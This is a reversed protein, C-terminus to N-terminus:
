LAELTADRDESDETRSQGMWRDELRPYGKVTKTHPIVKNTLKVSHLAGQSIPM